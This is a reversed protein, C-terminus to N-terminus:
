ILFLKLYPYFAYTRNREEGSIKQLFGLRELDRLLAYATPPSLKLEQVLDSARVVPMRYLLQVALHASPARKGLTLIRSEM